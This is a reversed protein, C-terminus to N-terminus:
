NLGSGVVVLLPDVVRGDAGHAAAAEQRQVQWSRGAMCTKSIERAPPCAPLRAPAWLDRTWWILVVKRRSNIAERTSSCRWEVLTCLHPAPTAPLGGALRAGRM